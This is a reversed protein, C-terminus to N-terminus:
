DRRALKQDTRDKSLSLKWGWLRAELLSNSETTVGSRLLVPAPLDVSPTADAPFTFLLVVGGFLWACAFGVGFCRILDPSWTIPTSSSSPIESSGGPELAKLRDMLSRM